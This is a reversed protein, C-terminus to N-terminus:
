YVYCVLEKHVVLVCMTIGHAVVLALLMRIGNAVVLLCLMRVENISNICVVDGVWM